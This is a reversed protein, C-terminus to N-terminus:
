AHENDDGGQTDQESSKNTTITPPTINPGAHRIHQQKELAATTFGPSLSGAAADLMPDWTKAAEQWAGVGGELLEDIHGSVENEVHPRMSVITNVASIYIRHSMGADSAFLRFSFPKDSSKRKWQDILEIDGDSCNQLTIMREWVDINDAKNTSFGIIYLTAPIGNTNIIKSAILRLILDNWPRDMRFYDKLNSARHALRTKGDSYYIVHPDNWFQTELTGASQMECTRLFIGERSGCAM